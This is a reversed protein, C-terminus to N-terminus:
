AFRRQDVVVMHGPMPPMRGAEPIRCSNSRSSPGGLSSVPSQARGFSTAPSALVRPFSGQSNSRHQIGVQVVLAAGVVGAAGLHRPAPSAARSAADTSPARPASGLSNQSGTRPPCGQGQSGLSNRSGAHFQSGFPGPSTPGPSAARRGLSLSRERQRHEYEEVALERLRAQECAMRMSRLREVGFDDIPQQPPVASFTLRQHAPVRAVLPSGATRGALSKAVDEAQRLYALLPMELYCNEGEEGEQVMLAPPAGDSSEESEGWFLRIRRGELEYEGRGLRRLLLSAAFPRDLAALKASLAVDIDDYPDAEYHVAQILGKSASSFAGSSVPSTSSCSPTPPTPQSSPAQVPQNGGARSAVSPFSCGCFLDTIAPM